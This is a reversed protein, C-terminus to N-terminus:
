VDYTPTTGYGFLVRALTPWRNSAWASLRYVFAVVAPVVVLVVPDTPDITVDFFRQAVYAAAAVWAVNVGTRVTAINRDPNALVAQATKTKITQIM